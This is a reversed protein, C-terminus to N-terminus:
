PPTTGDTKKRQTRKELYAEIDRAFDRCTAYRNIKDYAVSKMIITDLESDVAPNMESPRKQFLRDQFRIKIKLLKRASDYQPYPLQGAVMEFLMVGTAYVDAQGDVINSIIQEPAM